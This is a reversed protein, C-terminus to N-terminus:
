SRRVVGVGPSGGVRRRGPEPSGQEDQRKSGHGVKKDGPRGQRALGESCLLLAKALHKEVTSVTIGLQEAIAANSFGYVKQLTFVRRCHFPLAAVLDALHRLEDKGVLVMEPDPDDHVLALQDLNGFLSFHVLRRRRLKDFVLHRLTTKAFAVPSTIRSLDPTGMVRVLTDQVIDEAELDPPCVRQAFRLLEPELPLIHESFWARRARDTDSTM